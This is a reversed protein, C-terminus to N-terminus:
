LGLLSDRPRAAPAEVASVEASTVAAQLACRLLPLRSEPKPRLPDRELETDEDGAREAKLPRPRIISVGLHWLRRRLSSHGETPEFLESMLRPAGAEERRELISRLQSERAERLERM